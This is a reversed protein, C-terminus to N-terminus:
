PEGDPGYFPTTNVLTTITQGGHRFLVEAARVTEGGHLARNLPRKEDPMLSGDPYLMETALGHQDLRANQTRGLIREAEQNILLIRGERDAIFMGVPSTHVLTLLRENQLARGNQRREAALGIRQAIERLLSAEEPLFAAGATGQAEPYSVEIRGAAADGVVVPFSLAEGGDNFDREYVKGDLTLRVGLREPFQWGSPIISVVDSLTAEWAEDNAFAPLASLREGIAYLCSLEKIRETLERRPDDTGPAARLALS